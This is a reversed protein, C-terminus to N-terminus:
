LATANQIFSAYNAGVYCNRDGNDYRVDAGTVGMVKVREITGDTGNYQIRLGVSPTVAM